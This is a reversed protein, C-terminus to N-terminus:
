VWSPQDPGEWWKVGYTLPPLPEEGWSPRIAEPVTPPSYLSFVTEVQQAPIVGPSDPSLWEPPDFLSDFRVRGFPDIDWPSKVRIIRNTPRHEQVWEGDEIRMAVYTRYGPAVDMLQFYPVTQVSDQGVTMVQYLGGVGQTRNTEVLRRRLETTALLARQADAVNRDGEGYRGFFTVMDHFEASNLETAFERSRGIVAVGLRVREIGIRHGNIRIVIIRPDPSPPGTWGEVASWREYDRWFILLETCYDACRAHGPGNAAAHLDVGQQIFRTLEQDSRLWGLDEIDTERLRRMVGDALWRMMCLNGAMAVISWGNAIAAKQCYDRRRGDPYTLQCDAIVMGDVYNAVGVVVTM